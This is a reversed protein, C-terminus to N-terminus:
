MRKKMLSPNVCLHRKTEMLNPNVCLSKEEEGDFDPECLNVSEVVDFEPECLPKESLNYHCLGSKAIFSREWCVDAIHSRTNNHNLCPQCVDGREVNGPLCRERKM